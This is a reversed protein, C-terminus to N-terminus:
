GQSLHTNQCLTKHLSDGHHVSVVTLKIPVIVSVVPMPIPVMVVVTVISLLPMVLLPPGSM